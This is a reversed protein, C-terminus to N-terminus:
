WPKRTKSVIIDWACAEIAWDEYYLDKGPTLRKRYANKPTDKATAMDKFAHVLQKAIQRHEEDTQPVTEDNGPARWQVHDMSAKADAMNQFCLGAAMPYYKNLCGSTLPKPRCPEKLGLPVKQLQQQTMIPLNPPPPTADPTVIDIITDATGERSGM